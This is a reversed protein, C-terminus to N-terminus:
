SMKRQLRLLNHIGIIRAIIRKLPHGVFSIDGNSWKLANNVLCTANIDDNTALADMYLITAMKKRSTNNLQKDNLLWTEYENILRSMQVGVKVWNSSLSNKVKRSVLLIEDVYAFQIGQKVLRIHFDWDQGCPLDERYCGVSEIWARQYLPNGTIIIKNICTNLPDVEIEGFSLEALVESMAEDKIQRSSVVAGVDKREDFVNMQISIKKPLLVDDSDLFLVYQGKSFAIGTNRASPAGKRKNRIVSIQEPYREEFSKLVNFTGDKSGDDVLIIEIPHYSQAIVSDITETVFRESNFCPIIVSVLKSNM